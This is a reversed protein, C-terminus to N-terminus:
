VDTEKPLLRAEWGRRELIKHFESWPLDSFVVRGPMEPHRFTTWRPLKVKVRDSM